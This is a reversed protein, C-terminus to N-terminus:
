INKFDIEILNSRLEIEKMLESINIKKPQRITFKLTIHNEIKDIFVSYSSIKINYTHLIKRITTNAKNIDKTMLKVMFISYDKKTKLAKKGLKKIINITIVLIISGVISLGYMGVGTSLGIASTAWISASSTMGIINFEKKMIAGAGIFGIGSVVQAGIRGPDANDFQQAIFISLIMIITSGLSIIIHTRLGAPRGNQEQVFGIFGGLLFSLILKFILNYTNVTPQFLYEQIIEM